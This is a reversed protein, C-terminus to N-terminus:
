STRVDRVTESCFPMPLQGPEDTEVEFEEHERYTARLTNIIGAATARDISSGEASEFSGATKTLGTCCGRMLHCRKAFSMATGLHPSSALLNELAGSAAAEPPHCRGLHSTTSKTQQPM